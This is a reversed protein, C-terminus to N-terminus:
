PMLKAAVGIFDPISMADSKIGYTFFPEMESGRATGCLFIAGIQLWFLFNKLPTLKEANESGVL